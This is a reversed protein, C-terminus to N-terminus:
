QGKLQWNFTRTAAGGVDKMTLTINAPRSSPAKFVLTGKRHHGGPNPEDWRLPTLSDGRDDTLMVAKTLDADIEQHANLAVGFDWESSALTLPAVEVEAWGDSNTKAELATSTAAAAASNGVPSAAPPASAPRNWAWLFFGAALIVLTYLIINSKKM